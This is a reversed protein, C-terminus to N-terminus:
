AYSWKFGGHTKLLGKCCRNIHSAHLGTAKAALSGSEFVALLHGLLNYQKVPKSAFHNKGTMNKLGTAWAHQENQLRTVIELNSPTNNHKDGDKHNIEKGTIDGIFADAVLRHVYINKKDSNKSLTLFLYGYTNDRPNKIKEPCTMKNKGKTKELSKVRGLDSVEYLGEYGKVPLWIEIM